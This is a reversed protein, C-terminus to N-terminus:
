VYLQRRRGLFAFGLLVVTVVVYGITMGQPHLEGSAGMYDLGPAKNLPGAYWWFLYLVEFLRSGSTWTGCVLALAPVFMAGALMAFFGHVNGVILLHLGVGSGVILAVMVGALWTAPLQRGVPRAAAFIYQNTGQHVERSGMQSWILTPWLWAIPLVVAQGASMPVAAGVVILALSGLYWIGHQGKLMIKLEAMVTKFLRPSTAAAALPTLHTATGAPLDPRSPSLLEEIRAVLKDLRSQKKQTPGTARASDFRDFSLSAIGALGFAAAIVLLRGLIMGFSYDLGNWVFTNLHRKEGDGRVQIGMNMFDDENVADPYNAIATERMSETYAGLGFVNATEFIQTSLVAIVLFFYVLNGLGGRLLPICEFMVSIAGILLGMPVMMFFFPAMLAIVDISRDEARVYQMIGAVVMMVVVIAWLVAANSLMKGVTYKLKSLPTAAIIQGVRTHYDRDIASKILYFGVMTLFVSTLLAVQAGIWASNYIGRTGKITLTSWTSDNPPIFGWAAYVAVALTILFSYRRVRELFDARAIHYLV